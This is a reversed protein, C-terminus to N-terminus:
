LQGLAIASPISGISAWSSALERVLELLIAGDATGGSGSTMSFANRLRKVASSSNRM